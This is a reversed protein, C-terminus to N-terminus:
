PRRTDRREEPTPSDGTRAADDVRSGTVRRRREMFGYITIALGAALDTVCWGLSGAGPSRLELYGLALGAVTIVPGVFLIPLREVPLAFEFFFRM